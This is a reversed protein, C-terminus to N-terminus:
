FTGFMDRMCCLIEVYFYKMLFIIEKGSVATQAKKIFKELLWIQKEMDLQKLIKELNEWLSSIRKLSM